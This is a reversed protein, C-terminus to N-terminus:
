ILLVKTGEERLYQQFKIWQRLISAIKKRKRLLILFKEITNIEFPFLDNM